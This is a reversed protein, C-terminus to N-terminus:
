KSNYLENTTLLYNNTETNFLHYFNKVESEAKYITKLMQIQQNRFNEITNDPNIFTYDYTINSDELKYFINM